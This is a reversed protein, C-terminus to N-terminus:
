KESLAHLLLNTLNKDVEPLPGFWSQFGRRAQHLLMGLGDVYALSKKEAAKLLPTMLPTYVIDAVVLGPTAYGLDPEFPHELEAHSTAMGLSTTNVLLDFKHLEKEWSTWAIVDIHGLTSLQNALNIARQSNRNTITVFFKKQLLIAAIARGAGGAGLVLARNGGPLHGTEDLNSWFGIGDTSRARILSREQDFVLTNASGMLSSIEDYEDAIHYAIEKFPLTVNVGKFGAEMLGKIVVDFHEPENVPLPIYAGDIGYKQLWYNHILPSLSHRVPSGVIGAILTKGTIM